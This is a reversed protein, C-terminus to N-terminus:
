FQNRFSDKEFVSKNRVIWISKKRNKSIKLEDSGLLRRVIGFPTILLFFMLGLIIPSIIKGLIFGIFMWSRNLPSLLLPKVSTIIFFSVFLFLFLYTLYMNMQIYFYISVLIFIICFFYGFKKNSPLKIDKFKM